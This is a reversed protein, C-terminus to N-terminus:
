VSRSTSLECCLNKEKLLKFIHSRIKRFANKWTFNCEINKQKSTVNSTIRERERKPSVIASKVSYLPIKIRKELFKM